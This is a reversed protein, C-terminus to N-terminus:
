GLAVDLTMMVTFGVLTALTVVRSNHRERQSEPVLTSVVVYLMAGAAFCLALPLIGRMVVVAVAGIVGALPEVLATAQGVYFSRWLSWGERRLPLSVAAGEPFNQIAIGLALAVASGLSFSSLGAAAAGFAVGVALGEPVNHLTIATVLLATRRHMGPLLLREMVMMLVGGALIGGAATLWSIQGLESALAIGPELLSWFSAAVMVGAGFGVTADMVRRNLRATFFVLGAGAATVAWAFVTAILAQLPPDLIRLCDIL